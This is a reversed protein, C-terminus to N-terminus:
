KCLREKFIDLKSAGLFADIRKNLPNKLKLIKIDENKDLYRSFIQPINQIILIVYEIINNLSFSASFNTEKRGINWRKM